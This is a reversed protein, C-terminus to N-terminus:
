AWVCLVRWDPIGWTVSAKGAYKHINGEIGQQQHCAIKKRTSMPLLPSIPIVVTCPSHFILVAVRGVWLIIETTDPLINCTGGMEHKYILALNSLTRNHLKAIKSFGEEWTWIPLKKEIIRHLPEYSLHFIECTTRFATPFFFLM